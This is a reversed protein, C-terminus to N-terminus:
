LGPMTAATHADCLRGTHGLPASTAPARLPESEGVRSKERQSRRGAPPGLTPMARRVLSGAAVGIAQQTDAGGSPAMWVSGWSRRPAWAKRPM